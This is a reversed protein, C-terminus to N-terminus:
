RRKQCLAVTGFNPRLVFDFRRCIALIASHVCTSSFLSNAAKYTLQQFYL